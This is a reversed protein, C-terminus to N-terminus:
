AAGAEQQTVYRAKPDPYLVKLGEIGEPMRSDFFDRYREHVHAFAASPIAVYLLGEHSV